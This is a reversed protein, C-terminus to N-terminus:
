ERAWRKIQPEAAIDKYRHISLLLGIMIYTVVATHFGFSLFPLSVPSLLIFGFNSALYCVTQEGLALCCALGVFLGLRNPQSLSLFVARWFLLGYGGVVALGPLIGWATFLFTMIYDYSIGPIMGGIAESSGGIMHWGNMLEHIAASLYSIGEPDYIFRFFAHIRAKQYEAIWDLRFALILWAAFALVPIALAAPFLLRRNISFWNKYVAILIMIWFIVGLSFATRLSNGAFTVLLLASVAYSFCLFLDKWGGGKARYLIGGFLPIFLYSYVKIYSNVGNVPPCFLACFFLLAFLGWWLLRCYRGIVTYDTFYVATMAFIGAATYCIQRLALSSPAISASGAAQLAAAAFYQILIGALSFVAILAIMKWDPRPRHIRDMDAGVSVPDGMQRISEAMAKEPDMGEQIFAEKQDELHAELEKAVLERAKKCRMQSVVSEIYNSRGNAAANKESLAM